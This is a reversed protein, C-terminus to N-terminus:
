TKNIDTHKVILTFIILRPSKEAFVNGGRRTWGGLSGRKTQVFINQFYQSYLFDQRYYQLTGLLM